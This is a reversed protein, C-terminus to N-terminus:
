YPYKDPVSEATLGRAEQELAKMELYPVIADKYKDWGKYEQVDDDWTSMGNLLRRPVYPEEALQTIPLFYTRITFIIAGTKPLRRLSQRESRFFLQEATTAPQATYWGVDPKDESGISTSWPLNDDTQIFYNNRVVPKDCTQRIFFKEMGTKLKEKYKPVDGSTHIMSLPMNFKDKLRWFGALIIAGGKLYYTGEEDEIMIALDDQVMKAAIKMPDDETRFGLKFKHVEGTLLNDLGYETQKFLSPYRNPLYQWFEDLLEYAAEMAEPATGYLETGKEEIREVKHNHFKEWENDLEIWNDWEMNRIGMNVAYKHRFARYPLPKTKKVDWDKYAPPVPTHFEYDPIWHGYKRSKNLKATSEKYASSSSTSIRKSKKYKSYKESQIYATIGFVALISGFVIKSGHGALFSQEDIYEILSRILGTSNDSSTNM